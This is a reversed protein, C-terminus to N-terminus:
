ISTFYILGVFFSISLVVSVIYGTWINRKQYKVQNYYNYKRKLGGILMFIIAGFMETLGLNGSNDYNSIRKAKKDTM